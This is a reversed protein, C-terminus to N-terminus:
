QADNGSDIGLVDVIAHEFREMIEDEKEEAFSTNILRVKGEKDILITFPIGNFGLLKQVVLYRDVLVTLNTNTEDILKQARDKKELAVLYVGLGKDEYKELLKELEPIEKKCPECYSACFSFIIGKYNGTAKEGVCESLFFNNGNIDRLYFSPCIDGIEIRDGNQAFLLGASIISLSFILLLILGKYM